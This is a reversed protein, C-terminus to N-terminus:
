VNQTIREQELRHVTDRLDQRESKLKNIYKSKEDEQECGSTGTQNPIDLAKVTSTGAVEQTVPANAPTDRDAM